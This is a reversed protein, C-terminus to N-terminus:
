KFFYNRISDIFLLEKLENIGYFIFLGLFYFLESYNLNENSKGPM